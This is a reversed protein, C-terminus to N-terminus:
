FTATLILGIADVIKSSPASDVQHALYPEVSLPGYIPFITGAILRYRAFQGYRSDFYVESSVFDGQGQRLARVSIRGRHCAILANGIGCANGYQHGPDAM